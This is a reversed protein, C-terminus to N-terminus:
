PLTLQLNQVSGWIVLTSVMLFGLAVVGAILIGGFVLMAHGPESIDLMVPIGFYLLGAAAMLALAVVMMNLLPDPLMLFVPALWLPTPVVAALVFADRFNPHAEGLESLQRILMAMVPVAVLEILFFILAVLLLKTSGLSPFFQGGYKGGAIYLMLPPIISFPVVHLMFVSPVAPHSRVLRTWGATPTAFLSFLTMPHM